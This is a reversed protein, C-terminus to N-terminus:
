VAFPGLPPARPDRSRLEPPSIEGVIEIPAIWVAAAIQGPAEPTFVADALLLRSLIEEGDPTDLNEIACDSDDDDDNFDAEAARREVFVVMVLALFFFAGCRRSTRMRLAKVISGDGARHCTM